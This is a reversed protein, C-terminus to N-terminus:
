KWDVEGLDAMTEYLSTEEVISKEDFKQFYIKARDLIGLDDMYTMICAAVDGPLMGEHIDGCRSGGLMEVTECLTLVQPDKRQEELHDEVLLELATKLDM